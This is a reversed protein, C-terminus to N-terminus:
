IEQESTQLATKGSRYAWFKNLLFNIPISIPINILQALYHPIGLVDEELATLFTIFLFSVSYAAYVKILSKWFPQKENGAQAFVFRRNLLLSIFVTIVWAVFNSFDKNLGFLYYCANTICYSIGTNLGGVLGFKIFQLLAQQQNQNLRSIMKSKLQM